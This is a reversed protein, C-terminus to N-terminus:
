TKCSKYDGKRLSKRYIQDPISSFGVSLGAESLCGARTVPKQRPKATNNKEEETESNDSESGLESGSVTLLCERLNMESEGKKLGDRM